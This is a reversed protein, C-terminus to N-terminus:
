KKIIKKSLKTKDNSVNISYVGTPLDSIDLVTENTNLPMDYQKAIEGKINTIVITANPLNFLDIYVKDTTPNPFLKIQSTQNTNIESYTLNLVIISDCGDVSILTDVYTGEESVNFGFDTYTEGRAISAFVYTYTKQCLITTDHIIQTLTITDIVTDTINNIITDYLTITDYHDVILTDILTITDHNNIILTDVVITTDHIYNNVILTDTFNVTDYQVLTDIVITTDHINNILTDVITDYEIKIVTDRDFTTLNVIVLSDCGNTTTYPYSYTGTSTLANNNYYFTDSVFISQNITNTYTPNVVLNLTTNTNCGNANPTNSFYTGSTSLTKGDFTYTENDCITDNLTISLTDISFINPFQSSFSTNNKYDSIADCYVLLTNGSLANNGITPPTVGLFTMTDLDCNEFAWDYISTISAPITVNRLSSCEAFTADNIETVSSSIVLDELSNCNYFAYSGIETVSSPITINTLTTCNYFASEEISTVTSPIMTTKCGRILKNTSTEVLANCNDRSDYITNGNEVTISALDKCGDFAYEGISTISAPINISTLACDEFANDGIETVSSPIEISTLGLCGAFAYEGIATVSYNVGGINVVSPIVVEGSVYNEYMSKYTVEAETTSTINYYLKNNKYVTDRITDIQVKIITDRDFTTLNVIVLSDCGNTTTYTYTYAGTTTLASSNYYFTDGVFISQNITKEHTPNVVLNLTTNTNCGNANPTNSFYTGSASLTKNDFTYTENDCITDNLTISLTDISFINNGFHNAFYTNNKYSEIAECPVLLIQNTGDFAYISIDPPTTSKCIVTDLNSCGNFADSEITTVSSPITISTLGVCGKFANSQIETVTSPIITNKCGAILINNNTHIIANCDDRSDFYSNGDVSISSLNPCNRLIGSEIFQVSSPITISTLATSAFAEPAISVLSSPLNISTLSSCGEFANSGIYSVSPMNVNTLSSCNKFAADSIKTVTSPIDVSTLGSCNMFASYDIETVTYTVGDITVESPITVAGSIYNEGWSKYTVKAETSSIINYYLKNNQYLTDILTDYQIKIITDRAMTFLNLTVISDCGSITQLNAVYTGETTLNTGNFAFSDGAYIVKNIINNYSPKVFLNLTILSDFDESTAAAINHTYTGSTTIDTGYFNYTDNGCITDNIVKQLTSIITTFHTSFYSNNQYTSVAGSPVVLVNGKLYSNNDVSPPTLAKCIVTDINDCYTFANIGISTVSSPITINTLSTCNLFTRNNISTISTPINMSTLSTCNNFASSGISTVSSPITISTLSTCHNFANSGISTVSSPIITNMCGFILTNTSKEIIANCNDRSDYVTNAADVVISTLASCYGFATEGISTVSSPITISTLGTCGYFANIGISTVSSPITIDTLGTCGYFTNKDISTVSSPITISTLGTCGSFASGGISTVSSPITISTLGTCDSFASYGISTVSSPITISTLSTCNSFASGGISTVSSPITISTLGTCGSFVSNNISTVSTPINVSTLSTCNNFVDSSISTISTPINVSTLSKCCSFANNKIATVSYTTGNYTVESPIKVDGSVYDTFIQKYTVSVENTAATNITYYLTKGEYTYEFDYARLTEGMLSFLAVLLITYINKYRM